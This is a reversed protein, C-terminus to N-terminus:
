FHELLAYAKIGTSLTEELFGDISIEDTRLTWDATWSTWAQYGARSAAMAVVQGGVGITKWTAIHAIAASTGAVCFACVAVVRQEQLLACADVDGALIILKHIGKLATQVTTCEVRVAIWTQWILYQCACEAVLLHWACGTDETTGDCAIM